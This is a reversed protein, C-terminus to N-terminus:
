SRVEMEVKREKVEKESEEERKVKGCKV